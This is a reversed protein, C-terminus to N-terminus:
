SCHTVLFTYLRSSITETTPICHYYPSTSGTVDTNLIVTTATSQIPCVAWSDRDVILNCMSTTSTKTAYYKMKISTLTSSWSLSHMKLKAPETVRGICQYQKIVLDRLELSRATGRHYLLTCLEILDSRECSSVDKVMSRGQEECQKMYAVNISSRIYGSWRQRGKWLAHDPLLAELYCKICSYYNLTTGYWIGPHAVLFGAFTGLMTRSLFEADVDDIDRYEPRDLSHLFENFLVIARHTQKKRKQGVQSLDRAILEDSLITEEVEDEDGVGIPVDEESINQSMDAYMGRTIRRDPKGADDEVAAIRSM